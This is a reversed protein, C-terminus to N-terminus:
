ERRKKELWVFFNKVRESKWGELWVCIFSFWIKEIRRSKWRGVFKEDEWKEVKGM